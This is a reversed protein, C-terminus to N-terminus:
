LGISRRGINLLTKSFSTRLVNNLKKKCKISNVRQWYPKIGPSEQTESNNDVICLNTFNKIAVWGCIHPSSEKIYRFCKIFNPM